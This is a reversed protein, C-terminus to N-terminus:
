KKKATAKVSEIAFDAKDTGGPPVDFTKTSNENWSTPIPDYDMVPKAGKPLVEGDPSGTAASPDDKLGKGPQTGIRVRHTGVVAGEIRNDYLLVYRGDADTVGMSGAGPNPNDKGGVPQFSVVANPYPKGDLTVRGSVRALSPGGGGCGTALALGASLLLTRTLTNM